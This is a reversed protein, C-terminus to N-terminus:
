PSHKLFNVIPLRCNVFVKRKMVSELATSFKTLQGIQRNDVAQLQGGFGIMSREASGKM